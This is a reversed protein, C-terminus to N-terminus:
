FSMGRSIIFSITLCAMLIMSFDVPFLGFASFYVVQHVCQSSFQLILECFSDDCDRLDIKHLIAPTM